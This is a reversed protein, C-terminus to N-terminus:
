GLSLFCSLFFLEKKHCWALFDTEDYTYYASILDSKKDKM